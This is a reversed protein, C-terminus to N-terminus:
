IIGERYKCGLLVCVSPGSPTRLVEEVIASSVCVAVVVMAEVEPSRVVESTSSAGVGEESSALVMEVVVMGEVLMGVGGRSWVEM